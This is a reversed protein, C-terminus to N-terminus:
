LIEVFVLELSHTMQDFGNQHKCFRCLAASEGTPQGYRRALVLGDVEVEVELTVAPIKAQQESFATFGGANRPSDFPAPMPQSPSRTTSGNLSLQDTTVAIQSVM